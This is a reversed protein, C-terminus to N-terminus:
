SGFVEGLTTATMAREAWRELQVTDGCEMIRRRAEESVCIGRWELIRFLMKAEGKVEGKIEGKAEGMAEYQRAFESHLEYDSAQLHDELLKRAVSSARSSGYDHYRAGTEEGWLRAAERLAHVYADKVADQQPGEVHAGASLITLAPLERAKEPDTIAPLAGPHFTLPKLILEPHGMHIPEACARAVQENPCFVLLITDCRHRLRFNAVYAPWSFDKNPDYKLQAETIVGLEPKEPDGLLVTADCRLEQPHFASYTESTLKAAIEDPIQPVDERFVSRLLEPVLSPQNRVMELPLEHDNSPM